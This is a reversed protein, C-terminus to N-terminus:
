KPPHLVDCQAELDREQPDQGRRKSIWRDVPHRFVHVFSEVAFPSGQLMGCGTKLLLDGGEAPISTRAQRCRRHCFRTERGM